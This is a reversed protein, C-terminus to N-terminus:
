RSQHSQNLSPLSCRAQFPHSVLGMWKSQVKSQHRQTHGIVPDGRCPGKSGKDPTSGASAERQRYPREVDQEDHEETCPYQTSSESQASLEGSSSDASRHRSQRRTDKSASADKATRHRPISRSGSRDVCLHCFLSISHDAIHACLQIPDASSQNLETTILLGFGM